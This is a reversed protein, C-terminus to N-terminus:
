GIVMEIQRIVQLETIGWNGFGQPSANRRGNENLSLM